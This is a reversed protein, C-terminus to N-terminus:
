SGGISKLTDFTRYWWHEVACRAGPRALLAAFGGWDVRRTPIRPVHEPHRLAWTIFASTEDIMRQRRDPLV